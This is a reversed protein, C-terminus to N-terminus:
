QYDIFEVLTVPAGTPGVVPSGDVPVQYRPEAAHAAAALLLLAFVKRMREGRDAPPEMAEAPM